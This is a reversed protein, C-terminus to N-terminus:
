AHIGFIRIEVFGPVFGVGIFCYLLNLPQLAITFGYGLSSLSELM